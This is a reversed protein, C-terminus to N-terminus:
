LDLGADVSGAPKRGIWVPLGAGFWAWALIV